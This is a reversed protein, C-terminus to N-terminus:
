SIRRNPQNTGCCVRLGIQNVREGSGGREETYVPLRWFFLATSEKVRWTDGRGATAVRSWGRSWGRRCDSEGGGGGRPCALAKSSSPEPQTADASAAAAVFSYDISLLHEADHGPPQDDELLGWSPPSWPHCPLPAPCSTSLTSSIRPM